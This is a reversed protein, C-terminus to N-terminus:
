GPRAPKRRIMMTKTGEQVIEGRQNIVKCGFVLIGREPNRTERMDDVSQVVHITDGIFVPGKFNWTLGLFALTTGETIGLGQSLGSQISLGLLGHAIRKGFPTTRAFEDDTHLPNYDGSLGAFSVIDAETVTRARTTFSEGVAFEEYYRGQM